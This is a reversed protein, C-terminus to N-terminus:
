VSICITKHINLRSLRSFAKDCVECKYPKEGTHTRMHRVLTGKEIFCMKCVDCEFPKEGTHTRIHKVLAGKEVFRTKCVDCEFPKEGTHTRMHIVLHCTQTFRMPCIDCSFPKEGTHYMKHRKLDSAYSFSKECVDCKLAGGTGGSSNAQLAGSPNSKCGSGSGTYKRDLQKKRPVRSAQQDDQQKNHAPQADRTGCRATSGGQRTADGPPPAVEEDRQEPQVAGDGSGGRAADEAPCQEDQLSTWTTVVLGLQEDDQNLEDLEPGEDVSVEGPGEGPTAGSSIREGGAVLAG